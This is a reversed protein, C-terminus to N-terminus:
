QHYKEYAMAGFLDYIYKFATELPSVALFRFRVKVTVKKMDGLDFNVPYHPFRDFTIETDNSHVYLHSFSQIM